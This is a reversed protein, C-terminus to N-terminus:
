GRCIFASRGCFTDHCRGSGEVRGGRGYKGPDGVRDYGCDVNRYRDGTGADGITNKTAGVERIGHEEDILRGVRRSTCRTDILVGALVRAGRYSSSANAGALAVVKLATECGTRTIVRGASGIITRGAGDTTRDVNVLRLVTYATTKSRVLM